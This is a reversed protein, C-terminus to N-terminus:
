PLNMGAILPFPLFLGYHFVVVCVATIVLIMVARRLLPMTRDALSVCVLSLILSPILGTPRVTLGFVIPSVLVAILKPLSLFTLPEGAQFFGRFFLFAGILMLLSAVIAAFIGSGAAEDDLGIVFVANYLFFAGVILFFLAPVLEKPDFRLQSNENM